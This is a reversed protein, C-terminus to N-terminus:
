KRGQQCNPCWYLKRGSMVEMAIDVGCVRCPQGHRGYVWYRISEDDLAREFEAPSLDERTMMRGTKIGIELLSVWDRWLGRVTEERLQSGLVFPDIRARFLMEARYINGIGAMIAQDMLLRAIPVKRRAILEVIRDESEIGPENAADPGLRQLVQAVESFNIVECATPGRLDAVASSTLLRARVAGVPDPPFATDEPAVAGAKEREEEGVHIARTVRPAGISSAYTNGVLTLNGAFDWAGYIGLHVRLVLDNEFELFLHKGVARAATMEQGNILEAGAAFRGQPSSVAIPHGVFDAQFQHAIRHVSHGEPM